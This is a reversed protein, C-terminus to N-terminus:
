IDTWARWLVAGTQPDLMFEEDEGLSFAPLGALKVEKLTMKPQDDLSSM